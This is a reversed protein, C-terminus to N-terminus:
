EVVVRCGEGEGAHVRNWRPLTAIAVDIVIVVQGAGGADGTVQFIELSRRVRIMDRRIKRLGAVLAVVRGGPQIRGEVM